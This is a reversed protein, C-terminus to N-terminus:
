TGVVEIVLLGISREVSFFLPVRDWVWGLCIPWCSLSHAGLDIQLCLWRLLAESSRTTHLDLGGPTLMAWLAFFSATPPVCVCASAGLCARLPVCLCVPVWVSACLPVCAGVCLCVSACLCARLPVCARVCAPVSVISFWTLLNNAQNRLSVREVWGM